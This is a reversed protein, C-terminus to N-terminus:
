RAQVEDLDEFTEMGGAAGAVQISLPPQLQLKRQPKKPDEKIEYHAIVAEGAVLGLKVTLMICSLAAQITSRKAPRFTATGVPTSEETLRRVAQVLLLFHRSVLTVLQALYSAASPDHHMADQGM